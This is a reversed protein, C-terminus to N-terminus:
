RFLFKSLFFIPIIFRKKLLFKMFNAKVSGKFRCNEIADKYLPTDIINIIDKKVTSYSETRYFQSVIVSFVDHTIKRKLQEVFDYKNIDIEKIIHKAVIAPWECNFSKRSKTASENNYRYYYYVKNIIYVSYSNVMCPIVCAGDEGISAKKDALVFENFLKTKIIKGCLSPIFYKADIGHIIFPFIIKEIDNRCYYGERCGFDIKSFGDSSEVAMGYCLVDINPYQYLVSFINSLCGEGIWDDSDICMVYKGKAITGGDKRAEAVGGNKKHLVHVRSDKEAYKDCLQPCNDYSGDDVLIIEIDNSNYSLISDVCKQLYKEVNYVPIIVSIITEKKM